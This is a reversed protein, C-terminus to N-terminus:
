GFRRSTPSCRNRTRRWTKVQIADGSSFGKPNAIRLDRLELFQRRLDLKVGGVSCPTDLVQTLVSGIGAKAIAELPRAKEPKASDGQAAAILLTLLLPIM